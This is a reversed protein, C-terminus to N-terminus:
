KFPTSGGWLVFSSWSFFLLHLRFLLWPALREENGPLIATRPKLVILSFRRHEAAHTGLRCFDVRWNLRLIDKNSATCGCFDVAYFYLFFVETFWTLAPLITTAFCQYDLSFHQMCSQTHMLSRSAISYLTSMGPTPLWSCAMNLSQTAIRSLHLMTFQFRYYM